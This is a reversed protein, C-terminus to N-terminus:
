ENILSTWGASEFRICVAIIEKMKNIKPKHMVMERFLTLMRATHIHITFDDFNHTFDPNSNKLALLFEKVCETCRDTFKDFYDELLSGKAKFFLLELQWSYKSILKCYTNTTKTIFEDSMQKLEQYYEEPNETGHKLMTEELMEIAPAVLANLIQDKNGFYNYINSMGVGAKDAIDHISTRAFGKRLFLSRASKLIDNNIDEKKVQM